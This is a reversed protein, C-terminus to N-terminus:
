MRMTSFPTLDPSVIDKVAKGYVALEAAGDASFQLNKDHMERAAKM